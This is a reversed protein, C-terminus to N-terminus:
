EKTCLRHSLFIKASNYRKADRRKFHQTSSANTANENEKTPSTGQNIHAVYM